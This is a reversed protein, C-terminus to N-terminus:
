ASLLNVKVMADLSNFRQIYVLLQLTKLSGTCLLRLIKNRVLRSLKM